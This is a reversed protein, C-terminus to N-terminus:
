RRNRWQVLLHTGRFPRRTDLARDFGISWRTCPELREPGWHSSAALSSWPSVNNWRWLFGRPGMEPHIALQFSFAEGSRLHPGRWIQPSRGETPTLMVTVERELGCLGIWLEALRDEEQWASMLTQARGDTASGSDLGSFEFEVIPADHVGVADDFKPAPHVGTKVSCWETIEHSSSPWSFTERITGTADLTQLRLGERDIALQTFHFYEGPLLHATGAGATMIQVIGEQVQVDFSLQHSCLYALVRHEVLLEWLRAGATPVVERMRPGSSGNAPYVPQHGFVLKYTADAHERLVTALWDTEIWGDGGLAVPSTNIFILLSDSRRIYYSLGQQDAPGNRPLHPLAERFIAESERDYTVHNSPVHYLPISSRDLWAMEHELWYTWQRRLAAYDATLGRIEDGLFCIFDPPPWIRGMVTNIAAFTTEHPGGPVGSCSDGYCVFQFGTSDRTVLAAIPDAPPQNPYRDRM